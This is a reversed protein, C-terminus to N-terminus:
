KLRLVDITDLISPDVGLHDKNKKFYRYVRIISVLHTISCKCNMKAIILKFADEFPKFKKKLAASYGSPDELNQALLEAAMMSPLIGEGLAPFVTGVSEGVGIVKGSFHPEAMTPPALRLTRGMKGLVEGGNEKIFEVPATKHQGYKVDGAGVYAVRDGLPFYWLYGTYSPFPRVFFDDFPPEKFKVLYQLTPITFDRKLPPLLRRHIGTADIFLDYDGGEERITKGYNVKVNSALDKLLRPKDFTCLGYLKVSRLKGRLEVYLRRGKFLVYDDFNLGVKKLLEKMKYYGTAWACHSTFKDESQMEFVEVKHEDALLSSLYAGAPGMGVIAIRM